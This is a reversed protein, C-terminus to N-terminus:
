HMDTRQRPKYTLGDASEVCVMRMRGSVRPTFPCVLYEGEAEHDWDLTALATPLTFRIGLIRKSATEAIRATPNGNWYGLKGKVTFCAAVIDPDTQCAQSASAGPEGRHAIAFDAPLGTAKDADPEIAFLIPAAVCDARRKTALVSPRARVIIKGDDGFGQPEVVADCEGWNLASWVNRRTMEGNAVAVVGIEVNRRLEDPEAQRMVDGILLLTGDASYDVLSFDRSEAGPLDVMREQGNRWLRLEAGVVCDHATRDARAVITAATDGFSLTAGKALRLGAHEPCAPAGDAYAAQAVFCFLPLFGLITKARKLRAMWSNTSKGIDTM